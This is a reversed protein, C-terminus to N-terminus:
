VGHRGGQPLSRGVAQSPVSQLTPPRIVRAPVGVAVAGAPVDNVVLSNAEVRAGDGITVHGLVSANCGIFVDNGITPATEGMNTGITVGHMIRVRDGVKAHPHIFIMGTRVFHLERGLTTRRDLDVGAWAKVGQNALGYVKSGLWRAAPSNLALTWRGYRYVALAWFGGRQQGHRALDARLVGWWRGGM